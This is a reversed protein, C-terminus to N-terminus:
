RLPARDLDSASVVGVLRTVKDVVPISLRDHQAILEGAHAVDETADVFVADEMVDRLELDDPATALSRSGVIGLLRGDDAVVVPRGGSLLRADGVRMHPGYADPERMIQYVRSPSHRVVVTGGAAKAKIRAGPGFFQRQFWSGGPAGVVLLTGEPLDEVMAAPSSAEITNVALDPITEGIAALVQEAASEDDAPGHGYIARAPIGLQNGIRDAIAAALLSHPGGGVAAAVSRTAKVSLGVPVAVNCGDFSNLHRSVLLTARARVVATMLDTEAQVASSGGLIEALVRCEPGKTWIVRDGIGIRRTPGPKM